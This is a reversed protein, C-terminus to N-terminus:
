AAMKKIFKNLLETIFNNETVRIVSEGDFCFERVMRKLESSPFYLIMMVVIIPVFTIELGFIMIINSGLSSCILNIILSPIGVILIIFVYPKHLRIVEKMEIKLMRMSFILYGIYLLSETVLFGLAIGNIGLSLFTYFLTIIVAFHVLKIILKINLFNYVDYVLGQYNILLHFPIALSLLRLVTISGTWKAGLITIVVERANVGIFICAGFLVFGLLKILTSYYKYFREKDLRVENLTPFLVKILNTSIYQTPLQVLLYARNYIGLLSPAFFHGIILADSRYTLYEIFNSLSYKGGYNILGRTSFLNPKVLKIHGRVYFSTLILLLFGQLITSMVLSWVGFGLLALIIGLCMSGILSSIFDLTGLLFFHFEKRLLSISVMSVSQFIFNISMVRLIKVVGADHFLLTAFPALLIIILTFFSSVILAIFYASSIDKDSLDKKQIIAAGIGMQAFYSGFGLIVNVIAMLGYDNPSLIRALVSTSIIQIIVNLVM